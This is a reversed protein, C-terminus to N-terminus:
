PKILDNWNVTNGPFYKQVKILSDSNDFAAINGGMPSKLNESKIFFANSASIFNGPAEYDMLYVNKIEDKKIKDAQVFNLLCQVDDFKFLKSKKTGLEAVFQNEMITMKCQECNEKGLLVPQPGAACGYFVISLLMLKIGTLKM